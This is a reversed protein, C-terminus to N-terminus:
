NGLGAARGLLRQIAEIRRRPFLERRVVIRAFWQPRISLSVSEHGAPQACGALGSRRGALWQGGPRGLRLSIGAFVAGTARAPLAVAAGRSAGRWGYRAHNGDAALNCRDRHCLVLVFRRRDPWLLAPILLLAGAIAAWELENHNWNGAVARVRFSLREIPNRPERPNPASDNNALYGFLAKGEWTARLEFSKQYLESTSFGSTAHFTPFQKRVNYAVLPFAGLLFPLIAAALNKLTLHRLTERPFVLLAACAFGLATWAFLAKDWLALGFCFFALALAPRGTQNQFAPPPFSAVSGTRRADTPATAGSAGLRLLM